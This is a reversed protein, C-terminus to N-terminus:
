DRENPVHTDFSPTLWPEEGDLNLVTLHLQQGGILEIPALSEPLEPLHPYLLHLRRPVQGAQFVESYTLMQYADANQVDYTPAAHPNLRKWKTDAVIVEGSPLTILLDPRLRFAPTGGVAGLARSAVQTEIRWEPHERRLRVAVYAEYVRNMDFLLAHATAQTGGALPNLNRLLMECLPRLPEFHAHGRELRWASFDAGVARSPPVGDLAHLLERALRRTDPVVTLQAAREVALRVLRTEPRDPLFEDFAVHLLHARHGPQRVQRPLDLRGRLGAREEQVGVYAHPVGRRVGVRIGELAYRLVVELLPMKAADLATPPAVRFREDTAALMRLLVARSRALSGPAHRAGPREHTKPLVELVTGDPLRVLGVWQTLKVADYQGLRTFSAVPALSGGAADQGTLFVQLADFAEGALTHVNREGVRSVDGRVLLDHERVCLYPTM